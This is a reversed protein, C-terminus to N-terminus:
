KGKKKCGSKKKQKSKWNISDFNDGYSRGVKQDNSSVRGNKVISM